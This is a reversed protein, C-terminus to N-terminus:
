TLPRKIIEGLKVAPLLSPWRSDSEIWATEDFTISREFSAKGWADRYELFMTLPWIKCFHNFITRIDGVDQGDLVRIARVKLFQKDGRELVEIMPSALAIGEFEFHRITVKCADAQSGNSVALGEGGLAGKVYSASLEPDRESIETEPNIQYMRSYPGFTRQFRVRVAVSQCEASYVKLTFEYDEVPVSVPATGVTHTIHMIPKHEHDDWPNYELLNFYASEDLGLTIMAVDKPAHEPRLTVGAINQIPPTVEVLTVRVNHTAINRNLVRVRYERPIGEELRICRPDDPFFGFSALAQQAPIVLDAKHTTADNDPKGKRRWAVVCCAFALLM